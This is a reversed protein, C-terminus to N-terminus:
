IGLSACLQEVEAISPCSMLRNKIADLPHLDPQSPDAFIAIASRLKAIPWDAITRTPVLGVLGLKMIKIGTTACSILVREGSDLKIQCYAGPKYTVISAM